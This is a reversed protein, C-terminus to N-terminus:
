KELIDPDYVKPKLINEISIAELAIKSNGVPIKESLYPRTFVNIKPAIENM